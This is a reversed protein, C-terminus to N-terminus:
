NWRDALPLLVLLEDDAPRAPAGQQAILQDIQERAARRPGKSEPQSGAQIRLQEAGAAPVDEEPVSTVSRWGCLIRMPFSTTTSSPQTSSAFPAVLSPMVIPLPTKRPRWVMTVVLSPSMTSSSPTFTLAKQM